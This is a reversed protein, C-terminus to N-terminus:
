ARKNSNYRTSMYVNLGVTFGDVAVINQVISFDPTVSQEPLLIEIITTVFDTARRRTIPLLQNAKAAGLASIEGFNLMQNYQALQTADSITYQIYKTKFFNQNLAQLFSAYNTKGQFAVTIVDTHVGDTYTFVISGTTSTTIAVSVGAPLFSSLTSYYQAAFDNLGFIVYPLASAINAGDRTVTINLDGASEMIVQDITSQKSRNMNGGGHIVAHAVAPTIGLKNALEVSSPANNPNLHAEQEFNQAEFNGLSDIIQSYKDTM